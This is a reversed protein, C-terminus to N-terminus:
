SKVGTDGGLTTQAAISHTCRNAASEPAMLVGLM